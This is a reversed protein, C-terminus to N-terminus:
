GGRLSERLMADIPQMQANFPEVWPHPAATGENAFSALQGATVSSHLRPDTGFRSHLESRNLHCM